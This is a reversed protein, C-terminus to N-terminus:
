SAQGGLATQCAQAIDLIGYGYSQNWGRHNFHVGRPHRATALLIRRPLADM